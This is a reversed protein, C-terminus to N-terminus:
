IAHLFCLPGHQHINYGFGQTKWSSGGSSFVFMCSDLAVLTLMESSVDIVAFEWEKNEYSKDKPGQM